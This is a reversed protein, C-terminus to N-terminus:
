PMAWRQAGSLTCGAVRLPARSGPGSAALCLGSVAHVLADAPGPRWRQAAAGDCPRLGLLGDVPQLCSGLAQVTGDGGVSWTQGPGDDCDSLRLSTGDLCLGSAGIIRGTRNVGATAAPPVPQDTGTSSVSPPATMGADPTVPRDGTRLALGGLTLVLVTSGIAFLIPQRDGTPPDLLM